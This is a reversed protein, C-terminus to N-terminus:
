PAVSSVHHRSFGNIREARFLVRPAEMYSTWLEASLCYGTLLYGHTRPQDRPRCPLFKLGFSTSTCLINIKPVFPSSPLVFGLIKYVDYTNFDGIRRHYLQDEKRGERGGAATGIYCLRSRLDAVVHCYLLLSAVCHTVPGAICHRQPASWAPAKCTDHSEHIGGGGRPILDHMLLVVLTDFTSLPGVSNQEPFVM